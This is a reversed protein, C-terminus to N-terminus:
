SRSPLGHPADNEWRSSHVFHGRDESESGGKRVCDPERITSTVTERFHLQTFRLMTQDHSGFIRHERSSLIHIPFSCNTDFESCLIFSLKDGPTLGVFSAEIGKSLMSHYYLQKVHIRGVEHGPRSEHPLSCYQALPLFSHRCRGM